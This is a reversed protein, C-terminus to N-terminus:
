FFRRKSYVSVVAHGSQLNLQTHTRQDNSVMNDRMIAVRGTGGGGGRHECNLVFDLEFEYPYTVM